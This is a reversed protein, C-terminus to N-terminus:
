KEEKKALFILLAVFAYLMLLIINTILVGRLSNFLGILFVNFIFAVIFYITTLSGLGAVIFANNKKSSLFLINGFLLLESILTFIISCISIEDKDNTNVGFYVLFTFALVLFFLGFIIIKKKDSM